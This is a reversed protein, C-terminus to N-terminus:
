IPFPEDRPAIELFEELDDGGGPWVLEGLRRLRERDIRDYNARAIRRFDVADQQKKDWDRFDSIMAAYKAALAAELTPIVHQTQPDVAVFDKEKLIAENLPSWPLMLDIVPKPRGDSFCDAPDKFRIVPELEEVVLSPWAERLAQVAKKHDRRSILVDVDQTARPAPLYGAYGHLGMLVWKKVGAATLVDIVEQPKIDMAGKRHTQRFDSTLGVSIRLARAHGAACQPGANLLGKWGEGEVRAVAARRKAQHEQTYLEPFSLVPAARPRAQKRPNEAM